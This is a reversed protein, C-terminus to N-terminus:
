SLQLGFRNCTINALLGEILMKNRVVSFALNSVYEFYTFSIFSLKITDYILFINACIFQFEILNYKGGIDTRNGNQLLRFCKVIM